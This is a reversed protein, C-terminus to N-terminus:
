TPRTRALGPTSNLLAMTEAPKSSASYRLENTDADAMRASYDLDSAKRSGRSTWPYLDATQFRGHHHHRGSWVPLYEAAVPITTARLLANALDMVRDPSVAPPGLNQAPRQLPPACQVVPVPCHWYNYAVLHYVWFISFSNIQQRSDLYESQQERRPEADYLVWQHLARTSGYM